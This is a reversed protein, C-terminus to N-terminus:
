EAPPPHRQQSPQPEHLPWTLVCCTGREPLREIALDGGMERLMGHAVCLGLGLHRSVLEGPEIKTTYFPEFLHELAEDSIGGGTDWIRLRVARDDSCLEIGIVGGHPMAELANTILHDLVTNLREFPVPLVPVPHLRVELRVNGGALRQELGDVFRIVAETLDCLDALRRDGGAFALLAHALDRARALTEETVRLARDVAQPTPHQRAFDVATMAGGLINNFHHAVGAAFQRLARMKEAYHRQSEWAYQQSLNVLQVGLRIPDAPSEGLSTAILSYAWGPRNAPRVNHLFVESADERVADALAKEVAARDDPHLLDLFSQGTLDAGGPQAFQRRAGENAMLITAQEDLVFMARLAHQFWSRFLEAPVGESWNRSDAM